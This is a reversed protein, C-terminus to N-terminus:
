VAPTINQNHRFLNTPDYQRKLDALRQYNAGFAERILDAGEDAETGVQNVYFGQTFPLMAQSFERTWRIHEASEGPDLWASITAWEYGTDRHGFATDGSPVWSTANGMQQFIIASLPSTVQEFHAVMTDIAGNSIDKIFHSKIYYHRGAPALPAPDAPGRHLAHDPYPRGSAPWIRPSTALIQEGKELPGSYCVAMVGVKAGDHSTGLGGITSLEDPSQRSFDSYFRLYEKAKAFPYFLAGALVMPGVPYLQYEFSTVVGFNGGGGRIGWFLDPHESASVHRFQGDATVIDAAILNDCALGYRGSLWGIGGGPHPWRHGHRRRHRRPLSASPRRRTTSNGGNSAVKPGPTRRAPDVRIGKMM